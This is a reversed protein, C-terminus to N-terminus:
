TKKRNENHEAELSLFRRKSAAENLQRWALRLAIVTIEVALLWVGFIAYAVWSRYYVAVWVLLMIAGVDFTARMTLQVCLRTTDTVQPKM